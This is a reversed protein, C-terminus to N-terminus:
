KYTNFEYKLEKAERREGRENDGKPTYTLSSNYRKTCSLCIGNGCETCYLLQTNKFIM